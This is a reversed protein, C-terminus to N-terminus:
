ANSNEKGVVRTPFVVALLSVAVVKEAVDVM